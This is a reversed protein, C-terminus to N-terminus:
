APKQWGGRHGSPQFSCVRAKKYMKGPRCFYGLEPACHSDESCVCLGEIACHKEVVSPTGNVGLVKDTWENSFLGEPDYRGKVKLFKGANPYKAIAGDFAFDRNKGWHPLGGYKNLALQELEDVVDAHVRPMGDTRSRYYIIDFVVSDVPKGLYATSAKVYRLLVGLRPDVATCFAAPNLDRLKQMEAVFAPAKSLPVSFATNYYFTGRVRPDWVCATALGDEPSDLCAGSAQMRHQHGVVPFGTFSVGDNTFGNGLREATAAERRVAECRAMDTANGQQLREELARAKIAELTPTSRFLLLENVGNGPVSVDVRDDQRYAVVGLAPTWTIDGFEHLRGWTAVQEPFDTDNRKVFSVSRKFAPQLSLTIQTVVGLVGISVKAADLDPDGAVLERVMAFGKSAPAPTVIRMGVVYEHAAGGKGWLSSGHAGTSLLGGITLGYFYPSHPLSLGAAAAAETLDRLLMGSEVTMLRSAADVRVTRNLRATSVVAGDHGGPCALKPISHSHKTAVKLKRKASAAAAVTAIVEEETRPYTVSAARCLTRDTFAGYANSVTCGSSGHTCMVPEQPPSCSAMPILLLFLVALVFSSDM